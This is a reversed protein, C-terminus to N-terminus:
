KSDYNVKTVARGGIFVIGDESFTEADRIPGPSKVADSM